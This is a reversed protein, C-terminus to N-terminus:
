RRESNHHTLAVAVNPNEKTGQTVDENYSLGDVSYLVVSCRVLSATTHAYPSYGRLQLFTQDLRTM